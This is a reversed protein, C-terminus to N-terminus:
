QSSASAPDAIRRRPVRVEFTSGKGLESTLGVSGRFTQALHQVIALGLGTGGTEVSRAKDVRYFREFVREWDEEAIGPGDDEVQIVVQDDEAFWRAIIHGGSATYKIANDILNDLIVRMGSSDARVFLSEEPPSIRLAINRFTAATSFREVCAAVLEGVAVDRIDFAEKGSEVRALNLLDVILQNLRDADKEIRVIFNMLDKPIQEGSMRVTEACAKISSLPTKLEHSVNAVFDRQVTELRRLQSIDRLVLVVGATADDPFPTARVDVTRRMAGSLEFESRIEAGTEFCREVADNLPRIRVVEVLPRDRWDSRAFELLTQSTENALLLRSEANVAIVGEAMSALVNRMRSTQQRLEAVRDGLSLRLRDLEAAAIGLEDGRQKRIHHNFEGRNIARISHVIENLPRTISTATWVAGTTGALVLIVVFTTWSEFDTTGRSLWLSGAVVVAMWIGGMLMLRTFISVRQMPTQHFSNGNAIRSDSDGYILAAVAPM